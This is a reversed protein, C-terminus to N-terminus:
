QTKVANNYVNDLQTMDCLKGFRPDNPFRRAAEAVTESPTREVYNAPVEFLSAEPEGEKLTVYTAVRGQVVKKDKMFRTETRIALCNLSPALWRDVEIRDFAPGLHVSESSIQVDQSKVVAYGLIESKEGTCTAGAQTKTQDIQAQTLPYTVKTAIFPVVRTAKRAIPDAVVNIAVLKTGETPSPRYFSVVNAGNSRLAYGRLETNMVSNDTAFDVISYMGTLPKISTSAQVSVTASFHRVVFVGVSLCGLACVMLTGIFKTQM